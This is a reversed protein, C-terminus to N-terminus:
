CNKAIFMDLLLEPNKPGNKFEVELDMLESYIKKLQPKSFNRAQASAKQFVYPHVGADTATTGGSILLLIRFQRIIM